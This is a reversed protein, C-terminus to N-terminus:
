ERDLVSGEKEAWGVAVEISLNTREVAKGEAHLSQGSKVECYKESIV